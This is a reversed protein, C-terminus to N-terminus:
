HVRRMIVLATVGLLVTPSWAAVMPLLHFARGAELTTQDVLYYVLGIVVGMALRQGASNSRMRGLAFPLALLVMIWVAVPVSVKHWFATEYRETAMHNIRLYNIYQALGRWSLNEPSVVLTRFTAPKVFNAWPQTAAEVRYARDPMFRVGKVGHLIWRGDRYEARQAHLVETLTSKSRGLTFINIDSLRTPTDVTRVQVIDAGAKLWVGGPGVANIQAYLKQARVTEAERKAPPAIFEGLVVALVALLLGAWSLSRALRFLSAGSARMIMLEQHSALAGLAFVAGILTAVPLMDYATQPMTLAAYFFATGMTFHGTGINHLQSLMTLLFAIGVLALLAVAVGQLVATALYRDIRM